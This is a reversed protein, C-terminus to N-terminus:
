VIEPLGLHEAFVQEITLEQGTHARVVIRWGDPLMHAVHHACHYGVEARSKDDLHAAHHQISALGERFQQLAVTLERTVRQAEDEELDSSCV